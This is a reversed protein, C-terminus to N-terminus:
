SKKIEVTLSDKARKVAQQEELSLEFTSAFAKLPKAYVSCRERAYLSSIIVGDGSENVIATAFSQNSGSGDGQFPNFRITEVARASRKLRFEVKKLYGELEKNFHEIDDIHKRIEDLTQEVSSSKGPVLRSLRLHMHLLWALVVILALSLVYLPIESAPVSKIAANISEFLSGLANM